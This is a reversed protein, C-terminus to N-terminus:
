IELYPRGNSPNFKLADRYYSRAKSFNGSAKLKGAIRSYLKAKEFDDTQLSIAQEYFEIAEGSKGERDKLIGLYYASNASPNLEHLANVLKFFLPDGTCEKESMKAAARQLWVANTKNAEFNKEYLPILNECNARSGLKNDMGSSVQDYARVFSEYSVRIRKERSSLATGADEKEILDNLRESYNKVEEEIKEAVDDYKNFLDEAPKQGADYL